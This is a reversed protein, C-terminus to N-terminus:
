RSLGYLYAAVLLIALVEVGLRVWQWRKIM